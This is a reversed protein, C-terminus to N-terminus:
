NCVVQNNYILNIKQYKNELKNKQMYLYIAKLKDLKDEQKDPEGFIVEAQMKKVKFIYKNQKVHIETIIEKLLSDQIINSVLDHVEKLQQNNFDGFVLIVNETYHKSLPRKEGEKDLYYSKKGIIRAIPQYQEVYAYLHNNLDKYVEARSIFPNEVLKKEIEDIKIKGYTSDDLKILSMVEDNEIFSKDLPYVKVIKQVLKDNQVDATFINGL